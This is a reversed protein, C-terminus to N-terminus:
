KQIDEPLVNWLAYGRYVPSNLIVTKRTFKERCKVRDSSRLSMTPREMKINGPNRSETYMFSLLQVKQRQRINQIRNNYMLNPIDLDGYRKTNYDNIRMCRNHIRDHNSLSYQYASDMLFSAYDLYPVITQKYIMVAAHKTIFKRIRSFMYVKFNVKKYVSKVYTDMNLDECIDVGLYKYSKVNELPQTKYNINTMNRNDKNNFITTKTKNENITLKNTECWSIINDFLVQSERIIDTIDNGTTHVVTDDAYMLLKRQDVGPHSFLDNVYIIFLTPGLTSGQPVGFNVPKLESGHGNVITCQKRKALYNEFWSITNASFGYLALKKLLINHPVTDFAKKYDIYTSITIESKDLLNYLEKVYQFIASGTSKGSRFGHQNWRLLGTSDIYYRLQIHIAKEVLCGIIPMQSIPRWNGPDLQDGEKPIPTVYSYGWCAPFESTRLSENLLYAVEFNLCLFVDKIFISKLDDIASSKSVDIQKILNQCEKETIMRFSFTNRIQTPFTPGPNWPANGFKIALTEGINVYYDNMYGAAETDCVIQGDNNRITKISKGEAKGAGLLKNIESWVSKPDTRNMELTNSIFTAKRKRLLKKSLRLTLIFM